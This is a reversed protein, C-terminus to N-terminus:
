AWESGGRLLLWAIAAGVLISFIAISAVVGGFQAKSLPIRGANKSGSDGVNANTVNDYRKVQIRRIRIDLEPDLSKIKVTFRANVFLEPSGYVVDWKCTSHDLPPIM